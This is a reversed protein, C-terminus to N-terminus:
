EPTEAADPDTSALKRLRAWREEAHKKELRILEGNLWRAREHEKGLLWNGVSGARLQKAGPGVGYYEAETRIAQEYEDHAVGIRRRSEQASSM